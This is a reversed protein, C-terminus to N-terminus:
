EHSVNLDNYQPCHYVKLNNSQETEHLAAIHMDGYNDIILKPSTLNGEDSLLDTPEEWSLTEVSYKQTFIGVQNSEEYQWAVSLDGYNDEFLSICEDSSIDVRKLGNIGAGISSWQGDSYSKVHITTNNQDILDTEAYAIIPDGSFHSVIMSRCVVQRTKIDSELYGISNWATGNYDYAITHNISTNNDVHETVVLANNDSKTALVPNRYSANDGAYLSPLHIWESGNYKIFYLQTNENMWLLLPLGYSDLVMDYEDSVNEVSTYLTDWIAGNWYKLAINTDKMYAYLSIGYFMQQDLKLVVSSFSSLPTDNLTEGLQRWEYGDFSKVYYNSREITGETWAIYDTNLNRDFVMTVNEKRLSSNIDLIPSRLVEWCSAVPPVVVMVTRTVQVAANGATDNVDYTVRYEGAIASNVPNVVVIDETLDGDEEDLATAGADEYIEGQYLTVVADGLLTIVPPTTDEILEDVM